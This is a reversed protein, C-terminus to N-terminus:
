DIRKRQGKGHVSFQRYKGSKIAKWVDDDNVRFGTWWGSQPLVGDPIGMAKRKEPTIVFSEVLTSVGKRVHMEGGDRSHLVFNYAAKEIEDPDDIVDGQKDVLVDGNSRIGISAWGFVLHKDDDVKSIEGSLSFEAKAISADPDDPDEVWASLEAFEKDTIENKQVGRRQAMFEARQKPTLVSVGQPHSVSWGGDAKGRYTKGYGGHPLEDHAISGSKIKTSRSLQDALRNTAIVHTKQAFTRWKGNKNIGEVTKVKTTGTREDHQLIHIRRDFSGPGAAKIEHVDGAVPIWGHRYRYPTGPVHEAKALPDKVGLEKARRAILKKAAAVDGHGSQALIAANQLDHVNEIPYSGDELAHGKAALKKRRDTSFFKKAIGSDEIYQAFEEDTMKGLIEGKSVHAKARMAEWEALAKAAAAQVQPRVHNAGAAWRKMTAVATAIASSESHGSRILAHAVELIYTPLGGSRAVWNSTTSTSFHSADAPRGGPSIAKNIKSM